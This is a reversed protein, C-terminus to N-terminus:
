ILCVQFVWNIWAIVKHPNIKIQNLLICQEFVYDQLKHSPRAQKHMLSMGLFNQTNKNLNEVAKIKNLKKIEKGDIPWHGWIQAWNKISNWRACILCQMFHGFVSNNRTRLKRHESQICLNIEYIPSRCVTLNEWHVWRSIYKDKSVKVNM